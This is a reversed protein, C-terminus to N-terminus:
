FMLVHPWFALLIGILVLIAGGILRSWRAYSGSLGTLRLTFMAIVFVVLDDLMYFFIYLALYGYYGWWSLHSMSLIQAYVAPLGASCMLEVLNVAAALLAIGVLAVIFKKEFVARKLRELRKQKGNDTEVACVAAPKTFFEKLSWVGGGFAVFAIVFRVWVIMGLFIFLNLWAAMFAFYVAGSVLIFVLGLVWMRARHKMELLLGILFLLSWMACPNFGDVLGIAGTLVPLSVSSLSLTGFFPFTISQITEDDLSAPSETSTASTISGGQGDMEDTTGQSISEQFSSIIPAVMDGCEVGFCEGVKNEIQRGTTADSTYGVIPTDGIVTLPIGQVAIGLEKGVRSLLKANDVNYWVEFSHVRLQPYRSELDNLFVEEKACHPCGDGYFFYLNIDALQAHTPTAIFFGGAIVLLLFFITGIRTANV